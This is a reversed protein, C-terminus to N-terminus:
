IYREFTGQMFVMFMKLASFQEVRNIYVDEVNWSKLVPKLM